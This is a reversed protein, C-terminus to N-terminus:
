APGPPCGTRHASSGPRARPTGRRAPGLVSAGAYRSPASRGAGWASRHGRASGGLGVLTVVLFDQQFHSPPPTAHASTLVEVGEGVAVGVRRLGSRAITPMGKPQCTRIPRIRPTIR